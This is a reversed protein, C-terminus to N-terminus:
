AMWGKPFSTVGGGGGVFVLMVNPYVIQGQSRFPMKCSLLLLLALAAHPSFNNFCVVVVVYGNMRAYRLSLHMRLIVGGRSFSELEM